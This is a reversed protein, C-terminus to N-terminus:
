GGALFPPPYQLSSPKRTSRARRSSRSLSRRQDTNMQPRLKEAHMASAASGFGSGPWAPFSSMSKVADTITSRLSISARISNCRRPVAAASIRHLQQQILHARGSQGLREISDIDGGGCHDFKPQGLRPGLYFRRALSRAGPCVDLYDTHPTNDRCRRCMRQPANIQNSWLEQM